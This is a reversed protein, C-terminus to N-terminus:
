EDSVKYIRPLVYHFDVFITLQNFTLSIMYILLFFHWLKTFILFLMQYGQDYDNDLNNGKRWYLEQRCKM